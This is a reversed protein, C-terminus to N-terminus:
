TIYFVQLKQKAKTKESSMTLLNYTNVTYKSSLYLPFLNIFSQLTDLDKSWSHIRLSLPITSTRKGKKCAQIYSLDPNYAILAYSRLLVETSIYKPHFVQLTPIEIHGWTAIRWTVAPSLCKTTTRKQTSMRSHTGDWAYSM